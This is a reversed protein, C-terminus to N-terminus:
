KEMHLTSKRILLEENSLVKKEPLKNHEVDNLYDIITAILTKTKQSVTTVGGAVVRGYIFNDYGTVFYDQNVKWGHLDFTEIVKIVVSDNWCSILPKLGNYKTMISDFSFTEENMVNAHPIMKVFTTTRLESTLSNKPGNLFVINNKKHLNIYDCLLTIGKINDTTISPVGDILREVSIIPIKKHTKIILDADIAGFIVIAHAKYSLAHGIAVEETKKDYKTEFLMFPKKPYKEQLKSILRPFFPNRISPVIVFVIDTRGEFIGKVLANNNYDLKKIARAIMDSKDQSVIEPNNLYRSVTAISCGSEKAVDRMSAM